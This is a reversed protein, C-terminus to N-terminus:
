GVFSLNFECVSQLMARDGLKERLGGGALPPSFVRKYGASDKNVV